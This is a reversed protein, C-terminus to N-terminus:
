LRRYEQIDAMFKKEIAVNYQSGKGAKTSRLHRTILALM